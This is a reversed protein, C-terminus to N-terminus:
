YCKKGEQLGLTRKYWKNQLLKTNTRYFSGMQLLIIYDLGGGDKLRPSQQDTRPGCLKINELVINFPILTHLKKLAAEKVYHHM